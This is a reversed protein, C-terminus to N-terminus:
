RCRCGFCVADLGNITNCYLSLLLLICVSAMDQACQHDLWAKLSDERIYTSDKDKGDAVHTTPFRDVSLITPEANRDSMQDILATLDLYAEDISAREVIIRSDFDNLVKFM